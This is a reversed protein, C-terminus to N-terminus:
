RGIDREGRPRYHHKRWSRHDFRRQPLNGEWQCEVSECRFRFVPRVLSLLRDVLRRRVRLLRADGCRPCCIGERNASVAPERSLADAYRLHEFASTTMLIKKEFDNM